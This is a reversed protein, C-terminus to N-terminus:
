RCAGSCGVSGGRGHWGFYRVQSADAGSQGRAVPWETADMGASGGFFHLTCSMGGSSVQLTVVEYLM